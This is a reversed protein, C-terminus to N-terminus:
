EYNINEEDKERNPTALGWPKTDTTDFNLIRKDDFPSLVIKKQKISSVKHNKSRILKRVKELIKQDFL